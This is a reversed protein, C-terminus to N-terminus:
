FNSLKTSRTTEVSLLIHGKLVMERNQIPANLLWKKIQHGKLVM